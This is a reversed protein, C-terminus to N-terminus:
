IIIELTPKVPFPVCYIFTYATLRLHIWRDVILTTASTGDISISAIFPRLKIPIDQLLAFLTM